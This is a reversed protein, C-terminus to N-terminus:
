AAPRPGWTPDDDTDMVDAGSGVPAVGGLALAVGSGGRAVGGFGSRQNANLSFAVGAVGVQGYTGVRPTHQQQQLEREREEPLEKPKPTAPIAAPTSGNRQSANAPTGSTHCQHAVPTAAPWLGKQRKGEIQRRDQQWGLSEALQQVRKAERTGQRERPVGIRSLLAPVQVPLSQEAACEELHKMVVPLWPDQEQYNDNRDAIAAREAADCEQWVAGVRYQEVARSWIAARNQEAWNLPLDREVPICVFRTNGTTDRLAAGNSTGWFLFRRPRRETAKDYPSRWSDCTESLFAKLAEQDSRRTIGDLEALEIGWATHCRELSDKGMDGVGSIFHRAGFLIRGLATKGIWQPGVLVPTQRFDCGPEFTRAVAAMLYRPLFGAAIPDNIGLLYQDLRQWQEMPLPAVRNNNLYDAVPDYSNQEALLVAADYTAEKPWSEASSSLRLYLRAIANGTMVVDGATIDQSRTDLRLTGVEEPLRKMVQAPTLRIAKGDASSAKAASSKDRSKRRLDYGHESAIAWFSAANRTTTSDLVQRADGESPWLHGLLALAAGDPDPHGAEALAASCGCLANRDSDYTGEGGVRRPIYAAAANIEDISRPEWNSTLPATVPKLLPAPVPLCAEVEAASYRRETASLISCHGTAKGTEKDYYVSGPLRMVRAPNSCKSDSKCHSILRATIREWEAASIPDQLVWYVHVSKGGTSVMVSPEPLGLVQWRQQQEEITAGDDWEVFLAPCATIDQDEVGGGKGSATTAEGVVLYVNQGKSIRDQLTVGSFGHLDKGTGRPPMARLCRFWAAKPDKGLLKLFRRSELGLSTKSALPQTGTGSQDLTM